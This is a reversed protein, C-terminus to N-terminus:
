SDLKQEIAQHSAKLISSYSARNEDVLARSVSGLVPSVGSGYLARYTTYRPCNYLACNTHVSEVGM